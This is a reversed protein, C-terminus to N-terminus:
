ELGCPDHGQAVYPETGAEVRGVDRWNAMKDAICESDKFYAALNDGQVGSCTHYANMPTHVHSEEVHIPSLIGGQWSLFHYLFAVQRAILSGM